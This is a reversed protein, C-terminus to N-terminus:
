FLIAAKPDRWQAQQPNGGGKLGLKQALDKASKEGVTLILFNGEPTFFFVNQDKFENRAFSAVLKFNSEAPLKMIVDFDESSRREWSKLLASVVQAELAEVKSQAEALDKTLKKVKEGIQAFSKVQLEQSAVDLIGTLSEVRELVRPGTLATIRKIGSAVAEQSVIVFGWIQDTTEVHTGGCLEISLFKGYGAFYEQNDDQMLEIPLEPNAIQVVRVVDGYKEEFFMKAGLKSAEDISMEETKIAIWMYIMQNIRRQIHAFEQDTLLRDAYFDFRLLDADVLSGAQKTDPFIRGLEAHLLHTATHARMKAYRQPKAVTLKM